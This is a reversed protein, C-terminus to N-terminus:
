KTRRIVEKEEPFVEIGGIIPAADPGLNEVVSGIKSEDLMLFERKVLSPNVVRWKWINRISHGQEKPINSPVVVPPPPAIAAREIIINAAEHEGISEMEAAQQLAQREAEERANQREIEEKEIRKREEEARFVTRRSEMLNRAQLLPSLMTTRLSTIFKHVSNAQKAPEEFFDTINKQRTVIVDLLSGSALYDDIDNVELEQAQALLRPISTQMEQIKKQDLVVTMPQSVSM